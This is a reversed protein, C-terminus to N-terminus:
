FAQRKLQCDLYFAEFEAETIEEWHGGANQILDSVFNRDPLIKAEMEFLSYRSGLLQIELM